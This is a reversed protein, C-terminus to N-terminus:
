SRIDVKQNQSFTILKEGIDKRYSQGLKLIIIIILRKFFTRQMSKQDSYSIIYEIM